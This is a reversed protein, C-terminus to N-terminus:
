PTPAGTGLRAMLRQVGDPGAADTPLGSLHLVRLAPLSLGLTGLTALDTPSLRSGKCQCDVMKAERLEKCSRMGLKHCLAAAAEHDARLQQLPAQTPSWLGKSVGGFDVAARPELVNCLGEFIVDLADDSM